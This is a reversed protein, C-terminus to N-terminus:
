NGTKAQEWLLLSAAVAANLSEAAPSIPIYVSADCLASIETPVGHGENGIVIVDDHTLGVDMIPKAGERLEAAFVRRGTERMSSVFSTFDSVVHFVLSFIGGMAARITKPNTVEVCDSSLVVDTFGFAVASRVVAGLNGPDRVGALALIRRGSFGDSDKKNIKIYKKSFDISKLVTIIGQPSKESTIKSFASESFVVTRDSDVFSSGLLETVVPLYRDADKVSLYVRDIKGSNEPKASERFLKDGEATFFGSEERGKKTLLSAAFVTEPNNRSEIKRM